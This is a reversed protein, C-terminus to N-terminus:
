FTIGLAMYIARQSDDGVSALLYFPGLVTDAAMYVSGSVATGSMTNFGTLTDGLRAGELAMGGYVGKGLAAPLDSVRRYALLSGYAIKSGSFYDPPYASLNFLGGLSFSNYYPIETGLGDGLRANLLVTNRSWTFAKTGRFEVRDYEEDAGVGSSSKFYTLRASSGDHPFHTNDLQDYITRLTYGGQQYSSDPIAFVSESQIRGYTRTVGVRVEGWRGFVSGIELGGGAQMYEYQLKAFGDLYVDPHKERYL